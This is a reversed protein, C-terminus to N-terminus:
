GDVQQECSSAKRHWNMKVSSPPLHSKSLWIEQFHIKKEYKLESIGQQEHRQKQAEREEDKCRQEVPQHLLGQYYDYAHRSPTKISSLQAVLLQKRWLLKKGMEAHMKQPTTLFIPCHFSLVTRDGQGKIPCIPFCVRNLLNRKIDKNKLPVSQSM